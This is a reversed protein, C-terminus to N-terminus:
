LGRHWNGEASRAVNPVHPRLVFVMESNEPQSACGLEQERTKRRFFQRARVVPRVRHHHRIAHPTHLRTLKGAAQSKLGHHFQCALRGAPHHLQRVEVSLLDLLSHVCIHLANM